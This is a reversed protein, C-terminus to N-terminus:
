SAGASACRHDRHPRVRMLNKLMMKTHESIRSRHPLDRLAENGKDPRGFDWVEFANQPVIVPSKQLRTVPDGVDASM